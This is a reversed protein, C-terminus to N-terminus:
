LDCKRCYRYIYRQSLLEEATNSQLTYYGKWLYIIGRCWQPSHDPRRPVLILQNFSYYSNLPIITSGPLISLEYLNSSIVPGTWVQICKRGCNSSIFLSTLCFVQIRQQIKQKSCTGKIPMKIFTHFLVECASRALM